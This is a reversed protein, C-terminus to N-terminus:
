REAFYFRQQSRQAVEVGDCLLPLNGGDAQNNHVIWTLLSPIFFSKNLITPTRTTRTAIRRRARLKIARLDMSYPAFFIVPKGSVMPEISKPRNELLTSTCSRLSIFGDSNESFVNTSMGCSYM